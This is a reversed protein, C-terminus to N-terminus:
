TVTYEFVKRMLKLFEELDQMYQISDDLLVVIEQKGDGNILDATHLLSQVTNFKTELTQKEGNLKRRM